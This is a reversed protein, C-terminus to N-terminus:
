LDRDEPDIIEGEFTFADEDNAAQGTQMENFAQQFDGMMNAAQRAGTHAHLLSLVGAIGATVALIMADTQTLARELETEQFLASIFVTLMFVLGYGITGAIIRPAFKQAGPRTAIGTDLADQLANVPNPTIKGVLWQVLTATIALLPVMMISRNMVGAVVVAIIFVLTAAVRLAIPIILFAPM